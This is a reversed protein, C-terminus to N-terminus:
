AEVAEAPTVATNKEAPLNYGPWVYSFVINLIITMYIFVMYPLFQFPNVGFYTEIYIAAISWPVLVCGLTSASQLMRVMNKESLGMRRYGERFMEAAVFNTGYVTALCSQIALTTISGILVLTGPKKIKGFLMDGVVKVAGIKSMMGAYAMAVIVFVYMTSNSTMGGRGLMAMFQPCYDFEPIMDVKFGSFLALFGNKVTFGHVLCGVILAVIGSIFMAISPSVKRIILYVLVAVPLLVLISSNFAANVSAMYEAIGQADIAGHSQGFGLVLYVICSIGFAIGGPIGMLKMSEIPSAGGALQGALTPMDAVPCWIQGMYCGCVCAGAAMAPNVGMVSAVGFMIVGITGVSGNSTGLICSVISCFVFCCVLVIKPSIIQLLWGIIVPITGSFLWSGLTFGIATIFLFLGGAESLKAFMADVMENLTYGCLHAIFAVYFCSIIIIVEVRLGCIGYGIIAFILLFLICSLAEFKTPERKVRQKKEKSM